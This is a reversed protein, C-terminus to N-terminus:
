RFMLFINFKFSSAKLYVPFRHQTVQTVIITLNLLINISDKILNVTQRKM